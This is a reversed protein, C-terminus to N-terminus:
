HYFPVFEPRFLSGTRAFDSNASDMRNSMMPAQDEPAERPYLTAAFPMWRGMEAEKEDFSMNMEKALEKM